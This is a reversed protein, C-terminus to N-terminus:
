FISYIPSFTLKSLCILIFSSDVMQNAQYMQKLAVVNHPDEQLKRMANLRQAMVSGIDIPMSSQPFVSDTSQNGNTTVEPTSETSIQPWNIIDTSSVVDPLPSSSPVPTISTTLATSTTTKSSFPTTTSTTTSTTSITATTPPIIKYAITDEPINKPPNLIATLKTEIKKTKPATLAPPPMAEVDTWELEKRRHRDGSSVPFQERLEIALEKASRSPLQPFNRVRIQIDKKETLKFPHRISFPQDSAVSKIDDNDSDNDFDTDLDTDDAASDLASIARCFETWQQVSKQTTMERLHKLKLTNIDTGKPLDGKEIMKILNIKAIELLKQRDIREVSCRSSSSMVSSSRHSRNGPSLSRRSRKVRSYGDKYFPTVSRNRDRSREKPSLSRRRDSNGYDIPSRSRSRYRWDEEYLPSYPRSYGRSRSPPASSGEYYSGYFYDEESISSHTSYYSDKQKEYYDDSYKHKKHRKSKDSHKDEKQDGRKSSKHKSKKKLEKEPSIEEDRFQIDAYSRLQKSLLLKMVESENEDSNKDKTKDSKDSSKSKKITPSSKAKPVDSKPVSKHVSKIKSSINPATTRSTTSIVNSKLKSESKLLKKPKSKLDIRTKPKSVTKLKSKSDTRFKSKFDTKSKHKSKIKFKKPKQKNDDGSDIEGEEVEQNVDKFLTQSFAKVLLNDLSETM